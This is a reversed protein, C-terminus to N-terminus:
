LANTSNLRPTQREGVENSRAQGSKLMSAYCIISSGRLCEDLFRRCALPYAESPDSIAKDRARLLTITQSKSSVSMM